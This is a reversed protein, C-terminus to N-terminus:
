SWESGDFTSWWRFAAMPWAMTAGRAEGNTLDGAAAAGHLARHGGGGIHAGGGPRGDAAVAGHAAGLMLLMLMAAPLMM